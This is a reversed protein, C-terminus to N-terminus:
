KGDEPEWVSVEIIGDNGGWNQKVKPPLMGAKELQGLLFSCFDGNELKYDEIASDLVKVMKSRKM